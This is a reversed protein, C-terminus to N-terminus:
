REVTRLASGCHMCFRAVMAHGQQGCSPCAQHNIQQERVAQALEAGVIGTPVAIIGYGLIMSASALVQGLPTQPSIDGYGVTTITVIAWYVARPISTFGHEPGEVLYMLSGFITVAIVVGGLFVAIKGRSARLASTLVSAEGLLHPLKLIRFARLLRLSRVVIMLQAGPLLLSLYSPVISLLDVMGFFSTAYQLPRRVIWLRLLYEATFLATLIWEAVHLADGFRARYTDVSDLMVVLVSLLIAWLLGLDFGRGAPTDAEFIITHLRSQLTERTM